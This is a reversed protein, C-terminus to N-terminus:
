RLKFTVCSSEGEKELVWKDTYVYSTLKELSSDIVHMINHKRAFHFSDQLTDYMSLEANVGDKAFMARLREAKEISELSYHIFVTVHETSSPPAIEKLVRVIQDVQLALGVAPYPEGFHGMLDDYRGGSLIETGIDNAYGRFIVGTYYQLNQIMGLDVTIYNSYGLREITEYIQRVRVIAEKMEKNTALREAEEIVEMGGFLRPLRKLLQITEDNSDFNKEKLFESLGTYSKNEIYIRLSAEDEESLSLKKVISKYLEVQGIEIKCQTVGVAQLAHIASVICEVEARLNEIGIIEIGTQTLENYKGTMSKNARFINGSYTIKLPPKMMTSGIVRAIPITMDPRMVLIRGNQDFFKYMKEEDIPRNRFSFVDYFEISPTRIEQYGRSLFVRRLRQEVEEQRTCEEFLLDRTGTPNARKWKTM